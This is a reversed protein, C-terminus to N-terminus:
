NKDINVIPSVISKSVFIANGSVSHLKAGHKIMRCLNESCDPTNIAVSSYLYKYGKELAIKTIEKEFDVAIGSKRFPPLIYVNEIYVGDPTFQYSAFGYDNELIEKNEREKIFKAYHSSSKTQISEEKLFSDFSSGAHKNLKELM